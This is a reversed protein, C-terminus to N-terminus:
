DKPRTCTRGACLASKKSILIWKASQLVFLVFSVLYYLYLYLLPEARSSGWLFSFILPCATIIAKTSRTIWTPTPSSQFNHALHLLTQLCSTRMKSPPHWSVTLLSPQTHAKCFVSQRCVRHQSFRCEYMTVIASCVSKCRAASLPSRDCNFAIVSM